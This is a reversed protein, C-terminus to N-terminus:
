SDGKLASRLVRRGHRDARRLLGAHMVPEGRTVGCAGVAALPTLTRRCTTQRTSHMTM